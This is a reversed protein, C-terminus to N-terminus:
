AYRRGMKMLQYLGSKDILGDNIADDIKQPLQVVRVRELGLTKALEGAASGSRDRKKFADPDPIFYIPDYGNLQEFVSQEPKMSPLGICQMDATDLTVFTVMSKIEGEVLVLAGSQRDVDAIFPHQGANYYEQHYKRSETPPEIFRHKIQNVSGGYSKLPIAISEGSWWQVWEDGKKEWLPFDPAYGLSWFDQWWEAVGRQLWLGRARQNMNQQYEIWKKENRLREIALEHKQIEADIRQKRAELRQAVIEPTIDGIEGGLIEVARRFDVNQTDEIYQIVDGSKGCGFCKYGDDAVGFSATREDHFPCLYFSWKGSKSDPEGLWNEFYERADRTKIDDKNMM